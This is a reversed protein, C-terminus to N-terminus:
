IVRPGAEEEVAEAPAEGEDYTSTYGSKLVTSIYIVPRAARATSTRQTRRRVHEVSGTDGNAAHNEACHRRELCGDNM